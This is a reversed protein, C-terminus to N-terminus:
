AAGLLTATLDRIGGDSYPKSIRPADRFPPPISHEDTYGTAFCFPVGRARLREAIPFSDVDELRVDLIAGDLGDMEALALGEELTTAPGVVEHGIIELITKLQVGVVWADEVLLIRRAAAAKRSKSRSVPQAGAEARTEIQEGDGVSLVHSLPFVITCVAGTPCFECGVEAGLDHAVMDQLVTLGFGKAKPQGVVPGGSERWAIRVRAPEADEDISWAVDVQGQKASLAGYKAANTVLEHLALAITQAAKPRLSLDPGEFTVRGASPSTFPALEEVLLERLRAGQWRSASLLSHATAMARIRGDLSSIFDAVTAARQGTRAAIAGINALINKVRHDLEALLLRQREEDEKRATIDFAVGLLCPPQGHDVDLSAGRISVWRMAGKQPGEVRFSREFVDPQSLAATLADHLGQRDDAHVRSLLAERTPAEKFAVNMLACTQEDAVM